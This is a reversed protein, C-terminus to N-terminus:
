MKSIDVDSFSVEQPILMDPELSLVPHFSQTTSLSNDLLQSDSRKTSMNTPSYKEGSGAEGINYIVNLRKKQTRKYFWHIVKVAVLLVAVGVVSLVVALVTTATSVGDESHSSEPKSWPQFSFLTNEGSCVIPSPFHYSTLWMAQQTTEAYVVVVSQEGTIFLDLVRWTGHPPSNVYAEALACGSSGLRVLRISQSFDYREEQLAIVLTNDHYALGPSSSYTFKSTSTQGWNGKMQATHPNGVGDFVQVILDDTLTL